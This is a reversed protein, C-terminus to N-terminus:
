YIWIIHNHNSIYGHIVDIPAIIIQTIYLDIMDFLAVMFTISHYLAICDSPFNKASIEDKVAKFHHISIFVANLVLFIYLSDKPIKIIFIKIKSLSQLINM